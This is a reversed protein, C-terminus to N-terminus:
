SKRNYVGRRPSKSASQGKRESFRPYSKRPVKDHQRRVCKLRNAISVQDFLFGCNVCKYMTMNTKVYDETRPVVVSEEMAFGDCRPCKM